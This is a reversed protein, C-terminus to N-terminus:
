LKKGRTGPPEQGFLALYTLVPWPSGMTESHTFTAGPAVFDVEVGEEVLKLYMSAAESIERELTKQSSGPDFEMVVKRSEEEELEKLILKGARASVKWHILKPNDGYTYERLSRLEAGMERSEAGHAAGGEVGAPPPLRDVEVLRPYVVIDGRTPEIPLRKTFFGFPFGSELVLPPLPNRGRHKFVYGVSVAASRSPELRVMYATDTGLRLTLSYSSFLRKTNRVTVHFRAAVLAFPREPPRVDVAIGALNNRAMLGSAAVVSLMMGFTLYLLNNGTNLASLGVFLTLALFLYGERTPRTRAWRSSRYLSPTRGHGM